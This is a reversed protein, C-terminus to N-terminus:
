LKQLISIIKVITDFIAVLKPLHKEVNKPNDDLLNNLLKIIKALKIRVELTSAKGISYRVILSRLDEIECLIRNIAKNNM